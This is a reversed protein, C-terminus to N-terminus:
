GTRPVAGTDSGVPSPPVTAGGVTSTTVVAADGCEPMVVRAPGASNVGPAGASVEVVVGAVLGYEYTSTDGAAMSGIFEIPRPPPVHGIQGPPAPVFFQGLLIVDTVDANATVSIVVYADSGRCETFVSMALIDGQPVSSTTPAATTTTTAAATTTTTPGTTTTTAEETFVVIVTSAVALAALGRRALRRYSAKSESM